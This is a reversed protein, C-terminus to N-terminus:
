RDGQMCGHLEDVAQAAVFCQRLALSWAGTDCASEVQAALDPVDSYMGAAQVIPAVHSGIASCTLTPPIDTPPTSSQAHACLHANLLDDAAIVCARQTLSWGETECISTFDKACRAPDSERGTAAALDALHKGVSSCDTATSIAAATTRARRKGLLEAFSPMAGARHAASSAHAPSTHDRALETTSTTAASASAHADGGRTAVVVGITGATAVATVTAAIALKHMTSGKGAPSADVHSAPMTIGILALVSAAFAPKVGRRPVGREVIAVREALYQRGRSLRKNTTAATIGLSRAVDEVSREEYYFLVLPERYVDPVQGLAAALTRESEAETMADYPTTTTVVRDTDDLTERRLRKRADRALNRAIGCLWAPLRRTDRLEALRRWAILFADQAIDDALARDRVGSFAVAYVPRQYREIIEAFAARDGRCSAEILERDARAQM